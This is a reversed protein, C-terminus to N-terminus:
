LGEGMRIARVMDELTCTVWAQTADGVGHRKHVVIGVRHPGAQTQAQRVWGALDLRAQSKAEVALWPWAAVVIDERAHGPETFREAPVGLRTLAAAVELEWRRGKRREAAPM